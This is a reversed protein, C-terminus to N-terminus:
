RDSFCTIPPYLAPACRAHCITAWHNGKGLPPRPQHLHVLCPQHLHMMCSRRPSVRSPALPLPGPPRNCCACATPSLRPPLAPTVGGSPHSSARYRPSRSAAGRHPGYPDEPKQAHYPKGPPPWYRDRCAGSDRQWALREAYPHDRTTHVYKGPAHQRTRPPYSHATSSWLPDM